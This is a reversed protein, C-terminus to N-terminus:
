EDAADSTYLLCTDVRDEAPETRDNISLDSLRPEKKKAGGADSVDTEFLQPAPALKLFSTPRIFLLERKPARKRVRVKRPKSDQDGRWDDSDPVPARILVNDLPGEGRFTQTIGPAPRKPPAKQFDPRNRNEEDRAEDAPSKM